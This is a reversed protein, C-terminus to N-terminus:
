DGLNDPTLKNAPTFIRTEGTNRWKALISRKPVLKGQYNFNKMRFNAVMEVQNGFVTRQVMRDDTLWSFDTMPLLGLEWHLPSFFDYHAKMREKHKEFEKLNMHYLPPVNYLLELLEVTDV